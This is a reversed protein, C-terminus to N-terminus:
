AREVPEVVLEYTDPESGKDVEVERHPLEGALYVIDGVKPLPDSDELPLEHSEGDGGLWYVRRKPSM